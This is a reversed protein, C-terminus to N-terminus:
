SEQQSAGIGAAPAASLPPPYREVSGELEPASSCARDVGAGVARATLRHLLFCYVERASIRRFATSDGAPYRFSVAKETLLAVLLWFMSALVESTVTRIEEDLRFTASKGRM